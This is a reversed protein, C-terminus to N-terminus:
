EQRAEQEARRRAAEAARRQQEWLRELAKRAIRRAQEADSEARDDRTPYVESIVRVGAPPAKYTLIKPLQGYNWASFRKNEEPSGAGKPVWRLHEIGLGVPCEPTGKSLALTLIADVVAHTDGRLAPAYVDGGVWREKEQDWELGEKELLGRALIPNGTVSGEGSPVPEMGPGRDELLAWHYVHELGFHIGLVNKPWPVAAGYGITLQLFWKHKEEGRRYRRHVVRAWQVPLRALAPLVDRETRKRGYSLPLLLATSRASLTGPTEGTEDQSPSHLPSVSKLVAPKKWWRLRRQVDEPFAALLERSVPILAYTGRATRGMHGPLWVRRYLRITSGTVYLLPLLKVHPSAVVMNWTPDVNVLRDGRPDDAAYAGPNIDRQCQYPFPTARRCTARLAEEWQARRTLPNREDTSPFTALAVTGSDVLMLHSALQQAAEQGVGAQLVAPLRQVTVCRCLKLFLQQLQFKPHLHTAVWVDTRVGKEVRQKTTGWAIRIANPEKPIEPAPLDESDLLKRIWEPVTACRDEDLLLDAVHLRRRKTKGTPDTTMTVRVCARLWTMLDAVAESFWRELQELAARHADDAHLRLTEVVSGRERQSVADPVVADYWRRLRLKM